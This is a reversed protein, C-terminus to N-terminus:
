KNLSFGLLQNRMLSQLESTHEASSNLGGEHVAGDPPGRRQYLDVVRRGATSDLGLFGAADHAPQKAHDHELARAALALRRAVPHAALGAGGLLNGRAAAI